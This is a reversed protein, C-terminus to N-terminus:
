KSTFRYEGSGVEVVLETETNSVQHVGPHSTVSVGYAKPIRIVATTNGPVVVRWDLRNGDRTWDSEIKGYVSEYSAKVHNLGEPFVPAMEIKKFAQADDACKIGALDEYYWILLDGLLMVHNASNMAPDATDGNWLEWITTAGKNIMYGWSPYTENTVIKLALDKRGYETLGRMLHQIGLVGTSVHGGFDDETKRVINDFVKQEFGEPVLGLRLSLINATVTNNGYQATERNFYKANYAEKMEAALKQYAPIDATQGCLGAFKVMKNLLDYYVTTSLIAGDTKRAPDQSHILHQEEPPMCWDGYTDNVIVGDKLAVEEMHQMWRKMSPYHKRIASDDGFQRYLMDAVYFYASPWTVDDAYIEWYKPSVVSISGAENQSDEIDQLWKNYLLANNFLYAEGSAGTARDGLWGLREDRQPCDTPMGRYNSRIGWFANKHIQNVLANSSEFQGTTSMADYVVYGAFDTTSPQYDLGSVEVYRFGHYVFSPQWSFEGDAAPTYIDTVKASRLNAVYLTTDPNLIEAFRFTIPQNDKGKLKVGLWGVMNQGMDLIFKGDSRAIVNVPVVTDQVALNPNSQATLKGGPEKMLDATKWASDDFSVTNWGKLEKRADYEEGDFENNAVIPGQSTVKWSTDSVVQDMSGDTYEVELQALLSPLGTTLMGPVRMSFYRGNGLVVGLLNEGQQLLDTVDYVNYYVRSTYLSPMPAFVDKSIRKGNLYSESSGLGSIYLVARKVEKSVQFPKRLYRAALRTEGQDKEGPNSLANEGIWQGKWDNADLMAMGWTQVDSWKGSGQNADVKVRWFYPKKAQLQEGEYAIWLSQDSKVDGSDWLLNKGAKLDDASAAVQIRYGTQVLDPQGAHIQWSFRPHAVDIGQPNNKMEVQLHNVQVSDSTPNCGMMGALALCMGCLIIQKKM